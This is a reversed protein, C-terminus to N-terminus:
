MASKTTHYKSPVVQGAMVGLSLYVQLLEEVKMDVKKVLRAPMMVLGGTMPIPSTPMYVIFCEENGFHYTSTTTLLGLFGGQHHDGFACYVVSMGKMAASDENKQLMSVVQEVPGYVRKIIPIRNLVRHFVQELRYRATTKVLLGLVWLGVLVLSWGILMAVTDDTVFQLGIAMLSRGIITNPGLIAQLWSGVWGMIGVTIALPLVVFLGTLFTSVIGQDWIIAAFRKISM